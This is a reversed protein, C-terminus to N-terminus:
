VGEGDLAVVASHLANARAEALTAGRQQVHKFNPHDVHHKTWIVAFMNGRGHEGMKMWGERLLKEEVAERWAAGEPSDAWLDPINYSAWAEEPSCCAVEMRCDEHDILRWYRDVGGQWVNEYEEVRWGMWEAVRRNAASRDEPRM